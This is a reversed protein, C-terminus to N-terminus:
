SFGSSGGCGVPPAAPLAAGPGSRIAGASILKKVKESKCKTCSVKEDSNGSLTLFEFVADCELCKYEYIPM